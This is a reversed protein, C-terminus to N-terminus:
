LCRRLYSVWIGLGLAGVDHIYGGQHWPGNEDSPFFGGSSPWPHCLWHAAQWTWARAPRTGSPVRYAVLSLPGEPAWGCLCCLVWFPWFFALLSQSCWKFYHTAWPWLWSAKPLTTRPALLLTRKPVGWLLVCQSLFPCVMGYKNPTWVLM